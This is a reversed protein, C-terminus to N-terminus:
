IKYIYIYYIKKFISAFRANLEEESASSFPDIVFIWSSLLSFRTFIKSKTGCFFIWIFKLEYISFMSMM